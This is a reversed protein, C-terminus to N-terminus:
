REDRWEFLIQRLRSAGTSLEQEGTPMGNLELFYALVDVYQRRSLGGPNDEPMRTRILEFLGFLPQGNWVRVVDGTYWDLVHCGVCSEQYVQKGRAAQDATYVADQTTRTEPEATQGAAPAPAAAALTLLFALAFGRALAAHFAAGFPAATPALTRGRIGM